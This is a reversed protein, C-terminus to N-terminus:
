HVGSGNGSGNPKDLKYSDTAQLKRGLEDLERLIETPLQEAVAEAHELAIPKGEAGTLEQRAITADTRDLLVKAASVDGELAKRVLAKIVAERDEIGIIQLVSRTGKPRGGPNGSVGKPWTGPKAM